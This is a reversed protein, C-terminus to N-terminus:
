LINNVLQSYTIKGSYEGSIAAWIHSPWRAPVAGKPQVMRISSVSLRLSIEGDYVM